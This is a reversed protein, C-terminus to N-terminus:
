QNLKHRHSSIPNAEICAYGFCCHAQYILMSFNEEFSLPFGMSTLNLIDQPWKAYFSNLADDDFSANSGM